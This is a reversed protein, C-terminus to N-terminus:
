EEMSAQINLRWIIEDLQKQMAEVVFSSSPPDFLLKAKQSVYTAVAGINSFGPIFDNWTASNDSVIFGKSPGIGNQTLDLISSNILVLLDQDFVTYDEAIGCVKKVNDLISTSGDFTTDM